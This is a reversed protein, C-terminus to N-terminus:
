PEPVCVYATLAATLAGEFLQVMAFTVLGINKLVTAGVRGRCM